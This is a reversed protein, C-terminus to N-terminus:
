RQDESPAPPEEKKQRNFATSEYSATFTAVKRVVKGESLGVTGKVRGCYLAYLLDNRFPLQALPNARVLPGDLSFSSLEFTLLLTEGAGTKATVTCEQKTAPGRYETTQVELSGKDWGDIQSSSYKKETERGIVFTLAKPATEGAVPTCNLKFSSISGGNQENALYDLLSKETLLEPSKVAFRVLFEGTKADFGEVAGRLELPRDATPSYMLDISPVDWYGIHVAPQQPLGALNPLGRVAAKKGMAEYNGTITLSGAKWERKGEQPFHVAGRFRYNLVGDKLYTKLMEETALGPYVYHRNDCCVGDIRLAAGAVKKGSLPVALFQLQTQNDLFAVFEGDKPDVEPTGITNVTIRGPKVEGNLVRLIELTAESESEPQKAAFKAVVITPCEQVMKEFKTQRPKASAAGAGVTALVFLTVLARLQTNM